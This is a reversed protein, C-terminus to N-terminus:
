VQTTYTAIRITTTVAPRVLNSSCKVLIESCACVFPTRWLEDQESVQPSAGNFIRGEHINVHTM